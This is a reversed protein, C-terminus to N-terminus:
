HQLVLLPVSAHMALHKAVSGHFLSELFGVHRHLVAVLDMNEREAVESLALAVDNGEVSTFMHAVGAFTEEYDAMVRADPVDTEKRVVHAITISATSRRALQVLPRLAFPEVRVHDDALLVHRLGKYSAEKPVILVPVLSTRAVASASSGFVASGAAGQTGMVIMDVGSEECVSRLSSTLVGYIAQTNVVVHTGGKSKRLRETFHALGEVAAAYQASSMDVMAAYGPLPDLYTHVLTYATSDSGFLEFAYACANLSGESFDTPLLIHMM